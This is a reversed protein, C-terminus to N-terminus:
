VRDVGEQDKAIGNCDTECIPAPVLNLQAGVEQQSTKMMEKQVELEKKSIETNIISLDRQISTITKNCQEIGRLGDYALSKLTKIDLTSIDVDIVKNM